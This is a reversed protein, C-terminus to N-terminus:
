IFRALARTIKKKKAEHTKKGRIDVWEGEEERKNEFRHRQLTFNTHHLWMMPHLLVYHPEVGPFSTQTHTHSPSHSSKPYTMDSPRHAKLLPFPRSSQTEECTCITCVVYLSQTHTHVHAHVHTHVHSSGTSHRSTITLSFFGKKHGNQHSFFIHHICAHWKMPRGSKFLPLLFAQCQIHSLPHSFCFPILFFLLLTLSPSLSHQYTSQGPAMEKKKKLLDNPLEDALHTSRNKPQLRRRIIIITVALAWTYYSTTEAALHSLVPSFM